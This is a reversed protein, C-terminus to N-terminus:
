FLVKKEDYGLSAIVSDGVRLSSSVKLEFLNRTLVHLREVFEVDDGIPLM